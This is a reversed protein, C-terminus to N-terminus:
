PKMSLSNRPRPDAQVLETTLLRIAKAPLGGAQINARHSRIIQEAKPDISKSHNNVKDLCPCIISLRSEDGGSIALMHGLLHGRRVSDRYTPVFWETKGDVGSEIVHALSEGM